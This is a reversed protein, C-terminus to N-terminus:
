THHVFSFVIPVLFLLLGPQSHLTVVLSLCYGGRHLLLLISGADFLSCYNCLTCLSLSLTILTLWCIVSITSCHPYSQLPQVGGEMNCIDFQQEKRKKEYFIEGSIKFLTTWKRSLDLSKCEKYVADFHKPCVYLLAARSQWEKPFDRCLAEDFEYKHALEPEGWVLGQM